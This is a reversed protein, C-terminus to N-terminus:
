PPSLAQSSIVSEAYSPVGGWIAVPPSARAIVIGECARLIVDSGYLTLPRIQPGESQSAGHGEVAGHAPGDQGQSVRADGLYHQFTRARKTYHTLGYTIDIGIGGHIDHSADCAKWFSDSAVAKATSVGIQAEKRDSDLMWLAEYATWKCADSETLAIIVHGQVYQFTGIPMGFAIRVQSYDRCMEYAKWDGGAMYTSLIATAKGMARELAPWAQGAPGLVHSAPVEVNNFNVECVKDGIFGQMLWTSVGRANKDVVLLSIGDEPTAGESTRAAVIIQDAVHAWPIFLKSGNLVYNRGRRTAGMKIYSPGWGYEPETLATTFIQQGNAIATLFEKKQEESGAELIANASLVASDLLPSSSAYSGLVEAVVGFDTNSLGAGGYAEPVTMGSWGLDVMKRWLDADFGTPSDDIQLVREKPLEAQLLETASNKLQVQTPTM